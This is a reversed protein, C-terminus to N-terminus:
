QLPKTYTNGVGLMTFIRILKVIKVAIHKDFARYLWNTGFNGNFGVDLM